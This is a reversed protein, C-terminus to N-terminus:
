PRRGDTFCKRSVDSLWSGTLGGNTPRLASHPRMPDPEALGCSKRLPPTPSNEVPSLTRWEFPWKSSRCGCFGWKVIKFNCTLPMQVLRLYYLHKGLSKVTKVTQSASKIYYVSLASSFMRWDFEGLHRMLPPFGGSVGTLFRPSQRIASGVQPQFFGDAPVHGRGWWAAECASAALTM